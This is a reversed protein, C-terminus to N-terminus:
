SPLPEICGGEWCDAGGGGACSLHFSLIFLVSLLPFCLHVSYSVVCPVFLSPFSSYFMMHCKLSFIHCIPCLQFHCVQKLSWASFLVFSFVYIGWSLIYVQMSSCDCLWTITTNWPLKRVPAEKEFLISCELASVLRCMFAADSFELM